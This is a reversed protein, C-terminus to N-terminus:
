EGKEKKLGKGELEKLIVPKMELFDVASTTEKIKQILEKRNM